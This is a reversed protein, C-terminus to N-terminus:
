DARQLDRHVDIGGRDLEGMVASGMLAEMLEMFQRINEFGRIELVRGTSVDIDVM